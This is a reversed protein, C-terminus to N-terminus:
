LLSDQMFNQNNTSIIFSENRYSQIENSLTRILQGREELRETDHLNDSSSGTVTAMGLNKDKKDRERRM